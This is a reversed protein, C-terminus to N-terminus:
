IEDTFKPERKELFAAIGEDSDPTMFGDVMVRSAFSYAEALPMDLQKYFARKGRAIASSSKTAITEAYKTVVQELYDAPVVRNVLGFDRATQAEIMEGTLLMEMAHKRSVNRSLAVMPTSCFGGLNVGPTCFTSRDTCIALDCSAVLQCGAATAIGDVVAIVPKPHESIAMMMASCKEFLDDLFAKGGDSDSSHGQMEKLNHGACFIKGSSCIVVVSIDKDAAARDLEAHIKGIMAMSLSHAPPDTLEITLVGNKVATQILRTEAADADIKVAENM